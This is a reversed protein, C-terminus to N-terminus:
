NHHPNTQYFSNSLSVIWVILDVILGVQGLPTALLSKLKKYDNQWIYYSLPNIELREILNQESM